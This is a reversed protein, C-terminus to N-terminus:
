TTPGATTHPKQMGHRTSSAKTPNRHAQQTKGQTGRATTGTTHARQTHTLGTNAATNEKNRARHAAQHVHTAAAAHPRRFSNKCPIPRTKRPRELVLHDHACFRPSLKQSPHVKTQTQHALRLEVKPKVPQWCACRQLSESLIAGASTQPSRGSICSTVLRMM